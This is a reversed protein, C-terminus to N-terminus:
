LIVNMKLHLNNFAFNTLKSNANTPTSTEEPSFNVSPTFCVDDEESTSPTYDSPSYQSIVIVTDSTATPINVAGHEEEDSELIPVTDDLQFVLPDGEWSSKQHIPYYPHM